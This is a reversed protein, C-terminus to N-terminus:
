FFLSILFPVLLSLSLHFLLCLFAVSLTLPYKLHMLPSHGSDQTSNACESAKVLSSM